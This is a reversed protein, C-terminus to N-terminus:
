ARLALTKELVISTETAARPTGDDDVYEYSYTVSEGTARYGLRSYLRRAAPNDDAVAIRIRGHDVALAEAAEILATGIGCGRLRPVVHLNKLEPPVTRELEGSGVPEDDLWAVLYCCDGSTQRAFTARAYGRGPPERGEIVPVDAPVCPRVVVGGSVEGDAGSGGTQVKALTPM